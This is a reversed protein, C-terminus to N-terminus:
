TYTSRADDTKMSGLFSFYAVNDVQKTRDYNASATVAEFNENGYKRGRRNGNWLKKWNASLNLKTCAGSTQIRPVIFSKRQICTEM